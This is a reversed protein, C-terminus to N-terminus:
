LNRGMIKSYYDTWYQRNFNSKSHCSNCLTILNEPNNNKKNYDIHHVALKHNELSCNPDQCIHNDRELISQKLEKNFEIGYEEFSSGNNWVPSLEGLYKGKKANSMRQITIESYKRGKAKERMKQRTEETVIRGKGGKSINQRHEETLKKGKQLSPNNSITKERNKPDEWFSKVRKSVAKRFGETHIKGKNGEGTLEKKKCGCSKDRRGNGLLRIVISLCFLCLFLGQSQTKGTSSKRPSIIKRLEM